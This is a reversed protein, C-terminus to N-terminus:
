ENITNGFFGTFQQMSRNTVNVVESITLGGKGQAQLVGLVIIYAAILMFYAHAYTKLKAKSSRFPSFAEGHFREHRYTALCIEMLSELKVEAPLINAQNSLDLTPQRPASTPSPANRTLPTSQRFMMRILRGADRRKAYPLELLGPAQPNPMLFKDCFEQYRKVGLSRKARKKMENTHPPNSDIHCDLIRSAAYDATQQPINSSLAETIATWEVSHASFFNRVASHMRSSNPQAFVALNQDIVKYLSDFAADPRRPLSDLCDLLHGVAANFPEDADNPALRATVFIQQINKQAMREILERECPFLEVSPWNNHNTVRIASPSNPMQSIVSVVLRCKQRIVNRTM